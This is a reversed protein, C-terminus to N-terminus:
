GCDSYGCQTCTACGEKRILGPKECKPCIEGAFPEAKLTNAVGEALVKKQSSEEGDLLGLSDLHHRIVDGILAVLSPIYKGDKYFGGQTSHVQELEGVLFAVDGGKRFIASITRTLAVIWEQHKVSKSNVFIEFPKGDMDNITIYFAEEVGPHRIKYTSGTLKETRKRVVPIVVDQLVFHGRKSGIRSVHVTLDLLEADSLREVMSSTIASKPAAEDKAVSLVEGRGSDPNPRYTTCGKCGMAYANVYVQKFDEFPYDAPVNITKSVSSDIFDQCAAQMVLHDDVTLDQATVMYDPLNNVDGGLLRFLRYGFDEVDEYTKTSNDPALVNRKYTWAFTPELGSSINGYYISTTGTPAITLLVANRIGHRRIDDRLEPPLQRVTFGELYKEADFLPFPGREKALEVSASYATNRIVEMVSRTILVAEKSGYRLGLMQLMNGLGTIGLGIRRKNNAEIVQEPTPHLTVDLVNDLWRVGVEVTKVLRGFNLGASETFPMDVMTALNVAGLNCNGNPPLPQEGCPNTTYLYECYYLNNRNNVRDIFIVGPEAYDYTSRIIEDWLARAQIEEYVYMMKGTTPDGYTWLHKGDMRPHESILHWPRDNEVARMFKDTVLVSVNFNTLRGKTRKAKIFERVDPHDCRLTAMMAGRRSGAAKITGCMANWMDMFALPGSAPAMRKLVLAGNPRIGSFDQGIGGGMQQTLAAVTLSDMIGAANEEGEITKMSDQIRPTVYCNILTVLLDTGAGAHQRGGPCWNWNTLADMADALAAASPDKKYVGAAVRRHTDFPTAEPSTGDANKLRYKEHWIDKVIQQDFAEALANNM